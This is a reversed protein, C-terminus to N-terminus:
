FQLFYLFSITILLYVGGVINESSFQLGGNRSYEIIIEDGSNITQLMKIVTGKDADTKQYINIKM